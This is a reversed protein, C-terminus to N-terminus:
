WGITRWREPIIDLKDTPERVWWDPAIVQSEENESLWAGWWSFTSNAIIQHDCSHMLRIDEHANEGDNCEVFNLNFDMGDPLLQKTHTRVWRMNDSFFYFTTTGTEQHIYKIANRYYETPLARGLSVYDGRRVHVSVSDTDQIQDYLTKNEGYPPDSVTIEERLTDAYEKFYRESQWYGNLTVDGPLDLVRPDFGQPNNEVYLNFLYFALQPNVKAFIRSTRNVFKSGFGSTPIKQSYNESLDFSDLHLSRKAVHTGRDMDLSSPDVYLGTKTRLAHARGTAYQFLQNGLGGRLIVTVM